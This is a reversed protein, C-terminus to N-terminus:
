PRATMATVSFRHLAAIRGRIVTGSDTGPNRFTHRRFGRTCKGPRAVRRFLKPAPLRTLITSELTHGIFFLILLDLLSPVLAELLLRLDSTGVAAFDDHDRQVARAASLLVVHLVAFDAAARPM